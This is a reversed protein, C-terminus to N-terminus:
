DAHANIITQIYAPANELVSDYENAVIQTAVYYISTTASASYLVIDYAGDNLVIYSCYTFDTEYNASNIDVLVSTFQLKISNDSFRHDISDAACYAVGKGIKNANYNNNYDTTAFYTLDNTNSALKILVGYEKVTYGEKSVLANLAAYPLEAKFRLGQAGSTRIAAGVLNAEAFVRLKAGSSTAFWIGDFDWGTYSAANAADEPTLQTGTTDTSGNTYYNNEATLGIVSAAIAGSIGSGTGSLNQSGSNFCNNITIAYPARGVIGGIEGSGSIDAYSACDKILLNMVTGTSQNAYGVIGGSKNSSSITGYNACKSIIFDGGSTCGIIGGISTTGTIASNNVSNEIIVIYDPCISLNNYGIIGGVTTTGTIDGNNICGSIKLTGGAGSTSSSGSVWSIFGGVRAKVSSGPAINCSANNVCDKIEINFSISNRYYVAGIFGAAQAYDTTSSYVVSGSGSCNTIFVSAGSVNASKSLGDVSLVGILSGLNRGSLVTGNYHCNTINITSNSSTCAVWGFMGGVGNVKAGADADVDINAIINDFTCSGVAAGVLGGSYVITDTTTTETVTGSVTLNKVTAGDAYGFLGQYKAGSIDIGTISKGNGDITGTFATTENGIPAQGSSGSLDIDASLYYDRAWASSDGMLALFEAANSIPTGSPTEASIVVSGVPLLLAVIIAALVLSITKKM